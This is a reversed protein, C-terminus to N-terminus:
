TPFNYVIANSCIIVCLHLMSCPNCLTNGVCKLYNWNETENRSVDVM